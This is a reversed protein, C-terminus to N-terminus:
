SIAEIRAKCGTVAVKVDARASFRLIRQHFAGLRTWNVRTGYEGIAGLLAERQNGWTFGGDDSWDIIVSPDTDDGSTNGVGAEAELLVEDMIVRHGDGNLVSSTFIRQAVIDGDAHADPDIEYLVGAEFDGVINVGNLVAHHHAQWRGAGYTEREHWRGTLFDYVVTLTAFSLVYFTHGSQTYTFAMAASPDATERILLEIPPTSIRQPQYGATAYVGLDDGLWAIRHDAKAISGAARCGREIFGSPIRQFPFSANGSNYWFETTEKGFIALERHDSILGVINDPFADATSFDLADITTMDDLGTLYFQEGGEASFIGYGDQYTAASMRQAVVVAISSETAAYVFDDAAIGVHTGNDTMHCQRVGDVDGVLATTGDTGVTYLEGGSVVFLLSGMTHLGRIPGDGVEVFTTLGPTPLLLAQGKSGEPLPEMYMNLLKQASAPVSAARYSHVSLPVPVWQSM